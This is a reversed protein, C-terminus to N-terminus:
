WVIALLEGGLKERKARAGTMVGKSTSLISIGLGSM